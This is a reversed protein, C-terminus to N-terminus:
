RHMQSFTPQRITVGASNHHRRYPCCSTTIACVVQLSAVRRQNRDGRYRSLRKVQKASDCASMQACVLSSGPSNEATM